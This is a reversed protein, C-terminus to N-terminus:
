KQNIGGEGLSRRVPEPVFLNKAVSFESPVSFYIIFLILRNFPLQYSTM